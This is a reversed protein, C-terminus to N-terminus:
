RRRSRRMMKVLAGGFLLLCAVSAPEPVATVLVNDIAYLSNTGTAKWVYMQGVDIFNNNLEFSASVANATGAAWTLRGYRSDLGDMTATTMNLELKVSYLGIPFTKGSGVANTLLAYQTSGAANYYVANVTNTQIALGVARSSNTANNLRVQFYKNYDGIYVDFSATIFKGVTESATISHVMKGTNTAYNATTEFCGMMQGSVAATSVRPNPTGGASADIAWGNYGNWDQATAVNFNDEFITSAFVATGSLCVALLTALCYGTKKRM